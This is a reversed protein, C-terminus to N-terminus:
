DYYSPAKKLKANEFYDHQIWLQAEAERLFDEAAARTARSQEPNSDFKPVRQLTRSQRYHYLDGSLLVGGTNQLKGYLSQHGQTHGPTPKLVVTGDGFVDHNGTITMTKANRLAAYSSPQTAFPLKDAFMADRDSARALWTSGAFANANATHDFHYHSLALYTVQNSSYGLEALQALLPKRMTVQRERGDSPVVSVKVPNGTAAWAGDPVAGVDWIMLGKPHAILVCALAMDATEVEAKDLGFGTPDAIHHTGCDLVYLRLTGPLSAAPSRDPAACGGSLLM